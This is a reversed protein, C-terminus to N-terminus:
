PTLMRYAEITRDSGRAHGAARAVRVGATTVWGMFAGTPDLTAMSAMDVVIYVARKGASDLTEDLSFHAATLRRVEPADLEGDGALYHRGIDPLPMYVIDGGAAADGVQRLAERWPARGGQEAMHYVANQGLLAACVLGLGFLGAKPHAGVAWAVANAALLIACASTFFLYYGPVNQLLSAVLFFSAPALLGCVTLVHAARVPRTGWAGVAAAALVPLTVGHAYTMVIYPISRAWANRGWGSVLGGRLAPTALVVVGLAFMPAFYVALAAARRPRTLWARDRLAMVWCFAVPGLVFAGAPTHSLVVAATAVLAGLAWRVSGDKTAEYFAVLAVIGFAFTFVYHRANQSWFVHWPSLAVLLSAARGTWRCFLRRGAWHSLPACAVGILAPALRASWESVGFLRISAAVCAYPLPNMTLTAPFAQADRLTFVEDAWFSWTGLHVFRLAAAVATVAAIWLWDGDGARRDTGIASM